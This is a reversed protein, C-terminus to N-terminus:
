TLYFWICIRGNEYKTGYKLKHLDFINKVIALGLGHGSASLNQGRHYPLWIESIEKDSLKECANSISFKGERIEIEVKGDSTYKVANDVLNELARKMLRRDSNIRYESDTVFSIEADPHMGIVEDVLAQMDFSTKNLRRGTFELSSLDLMSHILENVTNVSEYIETAYYQEEDNETCELLTEANGSIIFLPTKLDHVIANTLERHERELALQKRFTMFAILIIAIGALVFILLTYVLMMSLRDMCSDMVDFREAYTVITSNATTQNFYIYEFLGSKILDSKGQYGILYDWGGNYKESIISDIMTSEGFKGLAFDSRIINKTNNNVEYLKSNHSSKPNLVFVETPAVKRRNSVAETAVVEVKQPIIVDCSFDGKYGAIYFETVSLSYKEATGDNESLLHVLRDYQEDTFSSRFDEFDICGPLTGNKRSFVSCYVNDSKETKDSNNYNLIIQSNAARDRNLIYMSNVKGVKSVTEKFHNDATNILLDREASYITYTFIATVILDLILMISIIAAFMRLTKKRGNMIM